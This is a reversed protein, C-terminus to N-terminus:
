SIGFGFARVIGWENESNWSGGYWGVLGVRSVWSVCLTVRLGRLARSARSAVPAFWVHASTTPRHLNFETPGM